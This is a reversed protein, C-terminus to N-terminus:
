YINLINTKKDTLNRCNYGPYNQMNKVMQQNKTLILIKLFIRKLIGDLTLCNPDLDPSVNQRAQDPFLKGLNRLNEIIKKVMLRFM